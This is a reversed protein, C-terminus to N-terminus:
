FHELVKTCEAKKPSEFDMSVSAAVCLRAQHQHKRLTVQRKFYLWGNYFISM